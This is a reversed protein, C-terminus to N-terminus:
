QPPPAPPRDRLEYVFQQLEHRQRAIAETEQNSIKEYEQLEAQAKSTEGGLRYLQALRYHAKELQPAVAIAQQLASIAKPFDKQESYVIGLQLYALGLKPDLRIATELLAKVRDVGKIDEASKWRKQLNVAYYYNAWANQPQLSVFRALREDLAASPANEVAQLKGLFLYPNPDNPNLDSAECFSQVAEDYSGHSYWAAGLGSLMRVSRPFARNGKEFVEIAPEAARHSLLETGWDFLNSESPNLEAARQFERVAELSDGLAEDVEALLHHLQANEQHSRNPVALLARVGARARTYDGSDACALALEYSNSVDNPNLGSARELYPLAEQPKAEEVLLKGLRFNADFDQPRRTVADRLSNEIAGASSGRVASNESPKGLSATAHALDERSRVITDGGHGGLNTTDTVGAVTFHPEDFFEPQSGSQNESGDARASDLIFDFTRPHESEAILVQSNAPAYGSMEVRLTYSGPRVEPFIYVGASDSHVTRIRADQGQLCVTAGVIPRSLSDRVVGRVTALAVRESQAVVLAKPISQGCVMSPAFLAILTLTCVPNICFRKM